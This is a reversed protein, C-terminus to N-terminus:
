KKLRRKENEGKIDTKEQRNQIGPLLLLKTELELASWRNVMFCKKKKQKKENMEKRRSKEIGFITHTSRPLLWFQLGM